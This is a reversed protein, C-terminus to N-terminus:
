KLNMIKRTKYIYPYDNCYTEKCFQYADEKVDCVKAVNQKVIILYKSIYLNELFYQNNKVFNYNKIYEESLNLLKIREKTMEPLPVYNKYNGYRTKFSFFKQYIFGGLSFLFVCYFVYIVAYYM